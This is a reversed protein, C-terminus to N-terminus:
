ENELCASTLQIYSRSGRPHTIWGAARLRSMGSKVKRATLGTEAAIQEHTAIVCREGETLRHIFHRDYGSSSEMVRRLWAFVVLAPNTGFNRVMAATIPMARSIQAEQKRGELDFQSKPTWTSKALFAIFSGFSEVTVRYPPKDDPVPYSYGFRQNARLRRSKRPSIPASKTKDCIIPSPPRLLIAESKDHCVSAFCVTYEM